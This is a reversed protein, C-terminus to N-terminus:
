YYYRYISHIQCGHKNKIMLSWKHMVQKDSMKKEMNIGMVKSVTSMHVIGMVHQCRLYKGNSAMNTRECRHDRLYAKNLLQIQKNKIKQLYKHIKM